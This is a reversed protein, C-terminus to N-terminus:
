GLRKISSVVAAPHRVIVIVEADFNDAFWEASFLAFPDKVLPRSRPM